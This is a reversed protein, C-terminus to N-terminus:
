FKSGHSKEWTMNGLFKRANSLQWLPHCVCVRYDAHLMVHRPATLPKVPESNGILRMQVPKWNQNTGFTRGGITWKPRESFTISYGFSCKFYPWIIVIGHSETTGGRIKEPWGPNRWPNSVWGVPGMAAARGHRRPLVRLMRQVGQPVRADHIALTLHSSRRGQLNAFDVLPNGCFCTSYSFSSFHHNIVLPNKLATSQKGPGM